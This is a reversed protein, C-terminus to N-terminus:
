IGSPAIRRARAPENGGLHGTRAAYRRFCRDDEFALVAKGDAPLGFRSLVEYGACTIEADCIVSEQSIGLGCGERWIQQLQIRHPQFWTAMTDDTMAQSM